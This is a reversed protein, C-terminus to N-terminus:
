PGFDRANSTLLQEGSLYMRWARVSYENAIDRKSRRLMGGYLSEGTLIALSDVLLELEGSMKDWEALGHKLMVTTAHLLSEIVVGGLTSLITLGNL